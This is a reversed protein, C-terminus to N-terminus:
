GDDTEESSGDDLSWRYSLRLRLGLQTATGAGPACGGLVDDSLRVNDVAGEFGLHLADVLEADVGFAGNIGFGVGTAECKLGSGQDPNVAERVFGILAVQQWVLSPGVRLYFSVPEVRVPDFRISAGLLDLSRDLQIDLEPLDSAEQGLGSHDYRLSFAIRRSVWLWAEAGVAGGVRSRSKFRPPDDVRGVFGGHLGLEIANPGSVGWEDAEAVSATALVVGFTASGWGRHM